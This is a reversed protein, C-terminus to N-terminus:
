GGSRRSATSTAWSCCRSSSLQTSPRGDLTVTTRAASRTFSPFDVAEAIRRLLHDEPILRTLSLNYYLKEEFQHDKMM